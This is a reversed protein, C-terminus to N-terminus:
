FAAERRSRLEQLVLEGVLKGGLDLLGHGHAIQRLVGFIVHGLLPLVKHIRAQALQLPAHGLKRQHVQGVNGPVLGAEARRHHHVVRGLVLLNDVAQHGALLGINGLPQDRGGRRDAAAQHALPHAVHGGDDGGVALALQFDQFQGGNVIFRAFAARIVSAAAPASCYRPLNAHGPGASEAAGASPKEVADHM